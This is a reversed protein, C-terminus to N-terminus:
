QRTAVVHQTALTHSIQRDARLIKPYTLARQRAGVGIGFTALQVHL